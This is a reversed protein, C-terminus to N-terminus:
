RARVGVVAMQVALDVVRTATGPYLRGLQQSAAYLLAKGREEPPLQLWKDVQPLAYRQFLAVLEDDARNPTLIAVAEVVATATSIMAAARQMDRTAADSGFYSGVRKLFDTVRKM